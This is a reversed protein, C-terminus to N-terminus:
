FNLNLHTLRIFEKKWRDAVAENDEDYFMYIVSIPEERENETLDIIKDSLM